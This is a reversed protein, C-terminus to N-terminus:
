EIGLILKIKPILDRTNKIECDCGALVLEENCLFSSSAALIPGKYTKRIEEVLPISDLSSSDVCGDMVVLDVDQNQDYLERGMQLSTARLIACLEGMAMRVMDQILESDNVVLVKKM